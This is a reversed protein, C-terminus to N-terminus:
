QDPPIQRTFLNELHEPHSHLYTVIPPPVAPLARAQKPAEPWVFPLHVVGGPQDIEVLAKLAARLVKRQGERDNPAGLSRGGPYGIGAVRPASVAASLDPIYSLIITTIGAAEIERQLLGV